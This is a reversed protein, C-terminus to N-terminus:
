KLVLPVCAVQLPPLVSGDATTTFVLVGQHSVTLGEGPQVTVTQTGGNAQVTVAYEKHAQLNMLRHRTDATPQFGYVVNGSPSRAEPDASFLVLLNGAADRIHAGVMNGQTAEVRSTDPMNTTASDAIYFVHLFLDDAQATPPRVQLQWGQLGAAANISSLPVSAINANQPLMTRCFLKGKGQPGTVTVLGGVVSPQASVNLLWEKSYSAQSATVRDVVVLVDPRSYLFSRTYHDAVRVPQGINWDMFWMVPTASGLAYVYTGADDYRAIRGVSYNSQDADNVVIVNHYRPQRNYGDSAGLNADHALWEGRWINFHNHGRQLHDTLFGGAHFSVWAADDGWDSRAFVTGGGTAYYTTPLGEFSRAIVDPTEWLFDHFANEESFMRGPTTNADPTTITQELWQQGYTSWAQDAFENVLLLMVARHGDSVGATSEYLDGEPYGHALDPLTAHVMFTMLDYPFSADRYLDEGYVSRAAEYILFLHKMTPQMYNWGESWDGGVAYRRMFPVVEKSNQESTIDVYEQARPENEGLTALGIIARGYLHAYYRNVEPRHEVAYYASADMAFAEDVWDNLQNVFKARDAPTLRDYCWDYGIAIGAARDGFYLWSDISIDADHDVMYNMLEIAKDGYTGAAAPDSDRLVQYALGYAMIYDAQGWLSPYPTNVQADLIGRLRTWAASPISARQRLAALQEPTLWVRPHAPVARVVRVSVTDSDTLGTGDRITLSLDYWGLTDPTFSSQSAGTAGNPAVDTAMLNSEGPVRLFEWTYSLESAAQDPDLSGSADLTIANGLTWGEHDQDPGADAWPSNPNYAILLQPRQATAGEGDTFTLAPAGWVLSVQDTALGLNVHDEPVGEGHLARNVEETVNIQIWVGNPPAVARSAIRDGLWMWPTAADTTGLTNEQWDEELRYVDLSINTDPGATKFLRLTATVVAQHPLFSSLDFQLYSRTLGDPTTQVLLGEGDHNVGESAYRANQQVITYSDESAVFTSTATLRPITSVVNPAIEGPSAPPGDFAGAPYLARAVDGVPALLVLVIAVLALLTSGRRHM